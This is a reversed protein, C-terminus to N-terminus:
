VARDDVRRGRLRVLARDAELHDRCERRKAAAVARARRAVTRVHPVLNVVLAGGCDARAARQDLAAHLQGVRQDVRERGVRLARAVSDVELPREDVVVRPERPARRWAARVGDEHYLRGVPRRERAGRAHRARAAFHKAKGAEAVVVRRGRALLEAEPQDLALVVGLRVVPQLRVCARARRALRRNLLTTPTVMHRAPVRAAPVLPAPDACARPLLM